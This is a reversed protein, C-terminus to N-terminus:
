DELNIELLIVFNAGLGFIVSLISIFFLTDSSIPPQNRCVYVPIDTVITDGIKTKNYLLFDPKTIFDNFKESDLPHCAFVYYEPFKDKGIVVVKQNNTIIRENRFQFLFLVFSIVATLYFAITLKRM